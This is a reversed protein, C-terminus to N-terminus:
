YSAILLVTIIYLMTEDFDNFYAYKKLYTLFRMIKSFFAVSSRLKFYFQMKSLNVVIKELIKRGDRMTNNCNKYVSLRLGTDVQLIKISKKFLNM